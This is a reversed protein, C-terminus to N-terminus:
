LKIAVRPYLGTKAAEYASIAQEFPFELGVLSELDLTPLLRGALELKDLNYLYSSTVSIGSFCFKLSDASLKQGLEYYTM